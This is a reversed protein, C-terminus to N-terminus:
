KVEEKKTEYCILNFFGINWYLDLCDDPLFIIGKRKNCRNCETYFLEEGKVERWEGWDHFLHLRKIM